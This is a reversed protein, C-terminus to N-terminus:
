SSRAWGPSPGAPSATRRSGVPLPGRDRPDRARRARRRRDPARATRLEGPRARRRDLRERHTLGHRDRGQVRPLDHRHRRRRVGEPVPGTSAADLAAFLHEPRVHMGNIDNSRATTPRAWSRSAGTRPPTPGARADRRGRARRARRGRQAHEHDRDADHASGVRPGVRARHARRQREPPPMGRVRARRRDADHPVIVTVGTRIPGVGIRLPGDGEILTTVGVAVGAVDTIANLPGPQLQGVTLGLDRYRTM